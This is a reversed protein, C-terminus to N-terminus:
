SCNNAANAGTVAADNYTPQAGAAAPPTYTVQCNAPNGARAHQLANGATTFDAPPNLDMVQRLAAMSAAYGFRTQVNGVGPGMNVNVPGAQNTVGATAARAYIMANAARMSGAAGRMVAARADGSINVFRPLAVAALIGLIVIVVILEILTFGTQRKSM